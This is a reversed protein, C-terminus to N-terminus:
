VRLLFGLAAAVASPCVCIVSQVGLRGVAAGPQFSLALANQLSQATARLSGLIQAPETNVLRRGADLLQAIAEAIRDVGRADREDIPGAVNM